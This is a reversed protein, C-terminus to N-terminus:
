AKIKPILNLHWMDAGGVKEVGIYKIVYNKRLESKSMNMFALASNQNSGEGAESTKGVMAQKLRPRYLVYQGNAVALIENVPSTWDIRVYADRGKAPLYKVTGEQVDTEDLVSDTKAMQISSKLSTLANKHAEMENLFRM